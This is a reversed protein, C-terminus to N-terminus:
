FTRRWTVPWAIQGIDEAEKNGLWWSALKITRMAEYLHREPTDRFKRLLVARVANGAAIQKPSAGQLEPLSAGEPLPGPFRFATLPVSPRALFKVYAGCESCELKAFHTSGEPMRRTRLEASGCQPCEKPDFSM